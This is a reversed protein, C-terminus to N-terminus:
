GRRSTARRWWQAASRTCLSLPRPPTPTRHAEQGPAGPPSLHPPTGTHKRGAALCWPRMALWLSHMADRFALAGVRPTGSPMDGMRAHQTACERHRVIGRPM